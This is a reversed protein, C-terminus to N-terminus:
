QWTRQGWCRPAIYMKSSFIFVFYVSNLHSIKLSWFCPTFNPGLALLEPNLVLSIQGPPPAKSISSVETDPLNQIVHALARWGLLGSAQAKSLPFNMRSSDAQTDEEQRQHISTGRGYQGSRGNVHGCCWGLSVQKRGM